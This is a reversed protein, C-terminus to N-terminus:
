LPSWLANKPKVSRREAASTALVPQALIGRWLARGFIVAALIGALGLMHGGKLAAPTGAAYAAVRYLLFLGAIAPLCAMFFALGERLRVAVAALVIRRRCHHLMAEMRGLTEQPHDTM